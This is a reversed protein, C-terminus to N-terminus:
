RQIWKSMDLDPQLEWHLSRFDDEGYQKISETYWEIMKDKM